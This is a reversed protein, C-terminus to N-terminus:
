RCPLQRRIDADSLGDATGTGYRAKIAKQAALAQGFTDAVIAIGTPIRAVDIVGPMARLADSDFDEVTGRVQPARAVVAPKAGPVDLDWCFRTKGTIHNRQDMRTVPKGVLTYEDYPKPSPGTVPEGLAAAAATLSGFSASRGDPAVVASGRA